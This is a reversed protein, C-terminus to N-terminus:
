EGRQKLGGNWLPPKWQRAQLFEQPALGRPWEPPRVPQPAFEHPKAEPMRTPKPQPRQKHPRHPNELQVATFHAMISRLRNVGKTNLYHSPAWDSVGILDLIKSAGIAGHRLRFAALIDRYNQNLSRSAARLADTLSAYRSYAVGNQRYVGVRLNKDANSPRILLPNNGRASFFGGGAREWAAVALILYTDETNAGILSLFLKAYEVEAYSVIAM